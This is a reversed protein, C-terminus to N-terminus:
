GFYGIKNGNEYMDPAPEGIGGGGEDVIWGFGNIFIMGDKKQGHMAPNINPNDSKEPQTVTTQAPEYTPETYPNTLMEEDEIQPPEPPATNDTQPTNDTPASEPKREPEPFNQEIEIGGDEIFDAAEKEPDINEPASNDPETAPITEPKPIEIPETEEHKATSIEVSIVPESSESPVSATVAEPAPKFQTAILITLAACVVTGGGIVLTRKTKMTM